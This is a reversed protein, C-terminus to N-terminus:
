LKFSVVRAVIGTEAVAVAHDVIVIEGAAAVRDATLDARGETVDAMEDM